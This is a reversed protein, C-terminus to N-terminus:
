RAAAEAAAEKPAAKKEKVILKLAKALLTNLTILSSSTKM